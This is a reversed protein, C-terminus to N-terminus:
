YSAPPADTSAGTVQRLWGKLAGRSEPVKQIGDLNWLAISGDQAGSALLRDNPAFAVRHIRGAHGRLVSVSGDELNWVRVTEDWGASALLRADHSFALNRVEGGHGRLERTTGTRVNVVRIVRDEGGSALLDGNPSLSLARVRGYHTALLSHTEKELSWVRVTGDWSSSYLIDDSGFILRHSTAGNGRLDHQRGNSLDTIRIISDSGSSALYRGNPSFAVDYAEGQHRYRVAGQGSALYWLVVSDDGTSALKSGDPSATVAWAREPGRMVRGATGDAHWEEIVGETAATVFNGGPLFDVGYSATEHSSLRQVALGDVRLLRVGGDRSTSVVSKGQDVFAVRFVDSAAVHVFTGDPRTIPWIRGEGNGDASFLWAGDASFSLQMIVNAHGRRSVSRGDRWIRVEGSLDGTAFTTGDASVTLISVRQEHGTWREPPGAVLPWVYVVGDDGVSVLRGDNLAAVRRITSSQRGLEQPAVDGPKWVLVREQRAVVVRGDSVFLVDEIGEPALKFLVTSQQAALDWRRVEGDRDATMLARGDEVFTMWSILAAHGRLARSEPSTTSWLWVVGDMGASALTKGDPSFALRDVYGAHKGVLRPRVDVAELLWVEGKTGGAAVAKGDPAFALQSLEALRVQWVRQGTTASWLQVKDLQATAILKSDSSVASAEIPQPPGVLLHRAVGRSHADSAVSRVGVWDNGDDPYQKLWAIAATPDRELMSRAQTLVLEASRAKAVNREHVIRRASAIATIALATLLVAAVAVPTRNRRLWRVLLTLKGYARAGVLQGTLFRSLDQALEKATPYRASPDRAMAKDVIAVLDRPAEPTREGLPPPADKAVRAIVTDPAGEFPPLAALLHYLMAGIAYVDAHEDVDEGRAQEPAMYAPTGVVTGARTMDAHAQAYLSDDEASAPDDALRRDKALGWDVVQTEGFAGLMVNAPKLDRHIVGESHAYAVAEAVALVHPLLALRADLTPRKEIAEDLTDGSVLKMAYFPDGSPWRGAEYVPVISPHQLRATVLAERVFRAATRSSPGQALEKLAVTRELRRDHARLVRGLGGRAHEGAIEYHSPDVFPLDRAAAAPRPAGPRREDRTVDAKTPQPTRPTDAAPTGQDQTSRAALTAAHALDQAPASSADALAESEEGGGSRSM